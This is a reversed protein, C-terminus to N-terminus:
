IVLLAVGLGILGAAFMRRLLQGEKLLKSGFFAGILMSVERAPAVHSVPAFQIATLVLIYASPGLISIILISKLNTRLTHKIKSVDKLVFPLLIIVRILNSWYEFLLPDMKLVKVAYSDTLTYLSIMLGTLLGWGIGNLSSKNFISLEKSWSLLFIGFVILMIGFGSNITLQESFIFIASISSLLPGTGRAIPYVVSLPAVQYGHLLVVYYIAHIIASLIVMLWATETWSLHSIEPNYISIYFAIPTWIIATVIATSFAFVTAGGSKKALLNWTAHFIAAILVLILANIQM